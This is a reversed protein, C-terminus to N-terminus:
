KELNQLMHVSEQIMMLRYRQQHQRLFIQRHLRFHMKSVTRNKLQEMKMLLLFPYM